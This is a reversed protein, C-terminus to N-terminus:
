NPKYFAYMLEQSPLCYKESLEDSVQTLYNDKEKLEFGVEMLRDVFDTAYLRVHDHQLFHKEREKPDTISADEYTEKRTYDIPVHMLAFGGPRLVRLIERMAKRDDKVHELVHNCIVIDYQHDSIPMHQIDMKIDALPSELDATHYNLNEMKKFRGYFCQEPAVHLVDLKDTFFNTKEKLFLWMLRHRELSLCSPCLVNQRVRNYGYPLLKRFKKGCVPCQYKSGRYWLALFGTFLYSLRILVRRPILNLIIPFLKKM